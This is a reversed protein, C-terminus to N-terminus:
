VLWALTAMVAAVFVSLYALEVELRPAHTGLRTVSIEPFAYAPRPLSAPRPAPTERLVRLPRPAATPMPTARPMPMPMPTPMPTSMPRSAPMSMPNPRVEGAFTSTPPGDDLDPTAPRHLSAAARPRAPKASPAPPAILVPIPGPRPPSALRAAIPAALSPEEYDRTEPCALGAPALVEAALDVADVM